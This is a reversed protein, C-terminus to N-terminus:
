TIWPARAGVGEAFFFLARAARGSYWIGCPICCVNKEVASVAEVMSVAEVNEWLVADPRLFVAAVVLVATVPASPHTM